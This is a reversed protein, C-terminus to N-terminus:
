ENVTPNVTFAPEYEKAYKKPALQLEVDFNDVFNMTSFVKKIM